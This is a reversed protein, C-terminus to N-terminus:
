SYAKTIDKMSINDKIIFFVGGIAAIGMSFAWTVIGFSAATAEPVGFIDHLGVMCAAQFSGIFGPTPFVAIFICIVVFVVVLSSFPLYDINFAFYFPYYSILSFIWIVGTLLIVTLTIKLNKLVHLGDTFSYLSNLIKTQLNESLPRCLFKIWSIVREQKYMLLFSTLIILVVIVFGIWGFMIIKEMMVPNGFSSKNNMLDPQFFLLSGLMVLIAIMDFMREIVITAFSSPFPINERKGLLYARILEGVRAPLLNAMFGIMVPSILRNHNVEKISLILYKWRIARIYYFALYFLLAPVFYIYHMSALAEVLDKFAVNRFTYYFALFAIILGIYLHKKKL